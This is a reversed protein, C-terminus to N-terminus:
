VGSVRLAKLLERHNQAWGGQLHGLSVRPATEERKSRHAEPALTGLMQRRQHRGQEQHVGLRNRAVEAAWPDARFILPILQETLGTRM